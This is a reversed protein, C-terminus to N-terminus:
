LADLADVYLTPQLELLLLLRSPLAGYQEPMLHFTMSFPIRIEQGAILKGRLESLTEDNVSISSGVGHWVDGGASIEPPCTNLDVGELELDDLRLTLGNIGSIADTGVFDRFFAATAADLLFAQRLFVVTREGDPLTELELTVGGNSSDIFYRGDPIEEPAYSTPLRYFVDHYWVPLVGDGEGLSITRVDECATLSVALTFLVIARRPM